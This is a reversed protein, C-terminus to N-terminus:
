FVFLRGSNLIHGSEYPGAESIVSLAQGDDFVLRMVFDERSLRTIRHGLLRHLNLNEYGAQVDFSAVERDAMTHELRHESALSIWEDPSGRSVSEHPRTPCQSMILEICFPQLVISSVECGVLFILQEKPPFEKM